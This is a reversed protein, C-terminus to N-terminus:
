SQTPSSKYWAQYWQQMQSIEAIQTKIISQALKRIEPKTTKSSVMQGMKVAMQHHPIMQRIFEKDFDTANKLAELDVEMGKMNGNMSMQMMGQNSGQDTTSQHMRMMQQRNMAMTPVEKGYWAKYWTRMQQIERVQDKKIAQALQKIEPRKARTLALDAMQVAQEHHPIMMTIFHQDVQGMMGQQDPTTQGSPHHSNDESDPTKAQTSNTVLLGAITSSTLLGIFSYILKKSNM